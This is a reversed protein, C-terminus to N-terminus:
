IRKKLVEEKAKEVIELNVFDPMRILLKWKWEELSGKLASRNRGRIGRIKPCWFIRLHLLESPIRKALGVIEM